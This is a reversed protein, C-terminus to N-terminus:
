LPQGLNKVWLELVKLVTSIGAITTVDSLWLFDQLHLLDKLWSRYPSIMHKHQGWWVLGKFFVTRQTTSLPSPLYVQTMFLTKSAVALQSSSPAMHLFYTWSSLAVDASLWCVFHCLMFVTESSPSLHLIQSCWQDVIVPSPDKKIIQRQIFKSIM